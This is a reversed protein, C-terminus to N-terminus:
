GVIMCGYTVRFLLRLTNSLTHIVVVTAKLKVGGVCHSRRVPLSLLDLLSSDEHTANNMYFPLVVASAKSIVLSTFLRLNLMFVYIQGLNQM